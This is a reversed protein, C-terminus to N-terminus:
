HHFLRLGTHILTMGYEDCAEIVDEDRTSGGPSAVYKVGFQKACDISDRFPFFADSSVVVDHLKSLWKKREDTTIPEISETFYNNTWHEQSIESGLVGSVMADIANSKESRRVTPKWPLGLVREYQRMWWSAAKEGALRTCHIRSQQGAGIGIVQGRHAFCVSNSQTYKVAITAVILDDIASKPLEKSKSVINSFTSARILATNRKQRLRLGFITREETESPMYKPDVKIVTYNGNKKKALISMAADDYGPAVVGDSVERSIIKATLEDCKDSLAIFDGFSSMRDAGILEQIRLTNLSLMVWDQERARAYAAALSPQKSNLPLDSVMCSAAESANLPIGVAAGAPSVHKFSSAAPLGTAEKLESVLQWANLADLINIYGPAGNLVKLPMEGDRVYLEADDKQHPNTGYRLQICREGNATLHRRM